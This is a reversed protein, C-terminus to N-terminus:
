PQLGLEILAKRPKENNPDLSLSKRFDAVALELKDMKRYVSGRRNHNGSSDPDLSIAQDIDILALDLKGAKEYV